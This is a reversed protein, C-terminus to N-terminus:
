TNMCRDDSMVRVPNGWESVRPDLHTVVGRPKECNVVDKKPQQRWPIWRHARLLKSWNGAIHVSETVHQWTCGRPASIADCFSARAAAV